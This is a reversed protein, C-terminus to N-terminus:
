FNPVNFQKSLLYDTKLLSCIRYREDFTDEYLAQLTKYVNAIGIMDCWEFPGYPYATGLKMGKDIDERNATGEQVTYYAENIIMCVVRPSVLGVRSAARNAEPWGLSKFFAADVDPLSCYELAKRKLFTPMANIGIVQKQLNVPIVAELQIRVCSLLIATHPPCTSYDRISEPRDDFDLDFIVDYAQNQINKTSELRTYTLGASSLVSGLEELREQPGLAAINM